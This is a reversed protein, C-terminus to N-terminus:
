PAIESARARIEAAREDIGPHSSLWGSERCAEGCSETMRELMSALAAPDRGIRAMLDVAYIDSEREFKRSYSQLMVLVPFNLLMDIAGSADGFVAMLLLSIASAQLVGRLAHREEVHGIEHAMVAMIEDDTAAANILGDLMVITGDVLAFANVMNNKTTRVKMQYRQPSGAAQALEDFMVRLEAQREEPLNSPITTKEYIYRAMRDGPEELLEEPVAFAVQKAVFPIGAWYALGAFALLIVASLSAIVVSHEIRAIHALSFSLWSHDNLANRLDDVGDNDPTEFRSGDPLNLARPVSGLRDSVKISSFAGLVRAQGEEDIFRTIGDPDVTLRGPLARSRGAEFLTGTIVPYSM